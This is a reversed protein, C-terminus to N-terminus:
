LVIIEDVAAIDRNRERYESPTMGSHQKFVKSFYNDESFGLEQAIEGITKRTGALLSSAYRLREGVIFRNPSSSCRRKFYEYFYKEGYGFHRALSPADATKINRMVYDRAEAEFREDETAEFESKCKLLQVLFEYGISALAYRDIRLPGALREQLGLLIGVPRSDPSLAMVPSSERLERGVRDAFDGSVTMWAFEWAPGGDFYYEFDRDWSAIFMSSPGVEEVLRRGGERRAYRGSGSITYQLIVCRERRHRENDWRYSKASRRERGTSVVEVPFELGAAGRSELPRYFTYSRNWM